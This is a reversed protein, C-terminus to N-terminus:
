GFLKPHMVNKPQHSVLGIIKFAQLGCAEKNQLHQTGM